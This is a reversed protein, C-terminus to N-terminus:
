RKFVSNTKGLFIDNHIRDAIFNLKEINVPSIWKINHFLKSPIEKMIKCIELPDVWLDKQRAEEFVDEWNFEYRQAIFSGTALPYIM